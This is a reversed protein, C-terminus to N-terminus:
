EDPGKAQALAISYTLWWQSDCAARAAERQLGMEDLRESWGKYAPAVNRAKEATMLPTPPLLFPDDSV